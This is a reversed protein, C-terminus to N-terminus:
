FHDQNKEALQITKKEELQITQKEELQITQKEELQITKKEELQITQKEPQYIRMRKLWTKNEWVWERLSSDARFKLVYGLERLNPLSERMNMPIFDLSGFLNTCDGTLGSGNGVLVTCDGTLGSCDGSMKKNPGEIIQGDVIHYLKDKMTELSKMKDEKDKMTELSKMKDEKDKMTELSKM